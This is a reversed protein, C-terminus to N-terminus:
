SRRCAATARDTYNAQQSFGRSNKKTISTVPKRHIDNPLLVTWTWSLRPLLRVHVHESAPKLLWFPLWAQPHVMSSCCETTSNKKQPCFSETCLINMFFHKRSVTPLTQPMLRNEVPGLFERLSTQFDCIICSWTARNLNRCFCSHLLHFLQNPSVPSVTSLTAVTTPHEWPKACPMISSWKFNRFTHECHTGLSSFYRSFILQILKDKCWRKRYASLTHKVRNNSPVFRPHMVVLGIWLTCHFCELENDALFNLTVGDVPFTISVTNQPEQPTSNAWKWFHLSIYIRCWVTFNQQLKPTFNVSFM